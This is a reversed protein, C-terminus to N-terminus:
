FSFVISRSSIPLKRQWAQFVPMNVELTEPLTQAKIRFSPDEQLNAAFLQALLLMGTFSRTEAISQEQAPSADLVIDALGALTSDTRTTVACVKGSPCQKRFAKVAWLTESTMGSRSIAILLDARNLMLEPYFALESAPYAEAAIGYHRFFSAASIGLAYTTGCGTLIIREPRSKYFFSSAKNLQKESTNLINKWIDPQSLIEDYTKSGLFSKM